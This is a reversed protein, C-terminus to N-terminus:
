SPKLVSELFGLGSEIGDNDIGHDLSPATHGSVTFGAKELEKRAMHYATVPVVGDAEGHILHVPPKTKAENPNGILAGSYGVIGALQKERRLGVYLSMMTGQSFGVLALNEEKLDYKQLLSDIYSNLIPTAEEAGKLMDQPDRSQLSFWQYSNPMGYAMDCPFPADPSVFLTDPLAQKWYQAIGILDQGNAGLGHLFMVM